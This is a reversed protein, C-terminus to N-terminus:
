GELNNSKKKLSNYAHIGRQLVTVNSLIALLIVGIELAPLWFIAVVSTVSLILIREAREALGISEMKVDAAEARARIYSV